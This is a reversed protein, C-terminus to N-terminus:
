INPIHLSENDAGAQSLHRSLVLMAKRFHTCISLSEAPPGRNHSLQGVDRLLGGHTTTLSWYTLLVSRSM